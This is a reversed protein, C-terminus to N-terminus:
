TTSCLRTDKDTRTHGAWSKILSENWVRREDSISQVILHVALELDANNDVIITDKGGMELITRKLWKQGKGEHVIGAREFIHTGLDSSYVVSSWDRPWRNHVRM